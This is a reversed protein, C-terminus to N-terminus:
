PQDELPISVDIVVPNSPSNRWLESHERSPPPPYTDMRPREQLHNYRSPAPLHHGRHPGVSQSHFNTEDQRSGLPSTSGERCHVRDSVGRNRQPPRHPAFPLEPPPPSSGRQDYGMVPERASQFRYAGRVPPPPSHDRVSGSRTENRLHQHPQVEDWNARPHHSSFTSSSTEESHRGSQPKRNVEEWNPRSRHSSFGSDDPLSPEESRGHRGGKRTNRHPQAKNQLYKSSDGWPVAYDSNGIDQRPPAPPAPGPPHPTDQEASQNSLPSSPSSTESRDSTPQPSTASPPNITIIREDPRGRSKPTKQNNGQVLNFPVSYDSNEAVTGSSNTRRHGNAPKTVTAAPPPASSGGGAGGTSRRQNMTLQHLQMVRKESRTPQANGDFSPDISGSSQASAAVGSPTHPSAPNGPRNRLTDAPTVYLPASESDQHGFSSPRVNRPPLPPNMDSGVLAAVMSQSRVPSSLKDPDGYSSNKVEEGGDDAQPQPNHSPPVVSGSSQSRTQRPSLIRRFM